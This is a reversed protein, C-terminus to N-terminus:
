LFLWVVADAIPTTVHGSIWQGPPTWRLFMLWVALFTAIRGPRQVLWEGYRYRATMPIAIWKCWAVGLGRIFGVKQRTWPAATAYTLLDTVSPPPDTLVSPPTWYSAAAKIRARIDRETDTSTEASNPSEPDTPSEMTVNGSSIPESPVREVDASGVESNGDTVAPPRTSATTTETM